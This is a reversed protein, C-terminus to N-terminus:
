KKEKSLESLLKKHREIAEKHHKMEDEHHEIEEKLHDHLKGLQERQLRNFYEEEQAAQRKGFSGGADRISGGSGGGKGAGRGLEDGGYYRSSMIPITNIGRFKNLNGVRSLVVRFAM